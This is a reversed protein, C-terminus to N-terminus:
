EQRLSVLRQNRQELESILDKRQYLGNEKDM